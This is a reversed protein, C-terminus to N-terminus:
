NQDIIKKAILRIEIANEPDLDGFWKISMVPAGNVVSGYIVCAALYSGINSPLSGDEKYLNKFFDPYRKKLEKFALGVPIVPAKNAYSAKTYNEAILEQMTEYDPFTKPNKKDGDRLASPMLLYIKPQKKLSIVFKSFLAVAKHFDENKQPDASLASDEQLIIKDWDGNSIKKMTNVNDTHFLLNKGTPHIFELKAGAHQKTFLETITSKIEETYSNGIFLINEASISFIFLFFPLVKIIKM